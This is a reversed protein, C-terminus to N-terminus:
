GIVARVDEIEEEGGFKDLLYNQMLMLWHDDENGEFKPVILGNTLHKQFNYINNDVIM